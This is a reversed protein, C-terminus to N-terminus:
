LNQLIVPMNNHIEKIVNCFIYVMWKIVHYNTVELCSTMHYITCSVRAQKDYEVNIKRNELIYKPYLALVTSESKYFKKM